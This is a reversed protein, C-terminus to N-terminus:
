AAETAAAAELEEVAVPALAEITAAHEDDMWDQIREESIGFDNLLAVAIELGRPVGNATYTLVGLEAYQKAEATDQVAAYRPMDPYLKNVIPNLQVSIEYRPTALVMAQAM